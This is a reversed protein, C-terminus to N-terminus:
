TCRGLFDRALTKVVHKVLKSVLHCNIHELKDEESISVGFLVKLHDQIQSLVVWDELSELKIM